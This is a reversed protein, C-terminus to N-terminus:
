DNPPKATRTGKAKVAEDYAGGQVQGLKLALEYAALADASLKAADETKGAQTQAEAIFDLIKGASVYSRQTLWKEDPAATDAALKYLEVATFLETELESSDTLTTAEKSTVDALGFLVRANQPHAKRAATLVAKADAYRRQRMMTDAEQLRAVLTADANAIVPATPAPAAAAELRNQKVRAFRAAYADLRAAEEEFNINQLLDGYYDRVDVGVKEYAKVKDYFNYVLVAGREYATSLEYLAEDEKLQRRTAVGLVDLRADTARVLSDTILYYASREAYVKDLKDGRTEMLKKLPAGIDRVEKLQREALPDLLFNLFSRRIAEVNTETTPGLLLFYDDRVIRLNATGVANLLDPIVFFRRVRNPNDARAKRTALRRAELALDEDSKEKGKEKREKRLKADAADKEKLTKLELAILEKIEAESRRVVYLPPLELIPETHLFSLVSGIAVGAAQPYTVATKGYAEVYKPLLRSFGSTQYFDQLLPLFDLIDRVDDPLRDQPVDLSFAPPETLSLALSLYPAVAQVEARGQRHALYHDRLRRAITPNLDKLDTRIMQRLETLARNGTEHDYGAVNLAAMMVIVRKDVGVYTNVDDLTPNAKDGLSQKRAPVQPPAQPAPKDQATVSLALLLFLCNSIVSKFFPM